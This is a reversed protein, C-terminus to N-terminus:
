GDKREEMLCEELKTLAAAKPRGNGLTLIFPELSGARIKAVEQPGEKGYGVGLAPSARVERKDGLVGVKRPGNM